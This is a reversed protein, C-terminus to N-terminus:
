GVPDTTGEPRGALWDAGGTFWPESGGAFWPQYPDRRASGSDGAAGRGSAPWRPGAMGAEQRDPDAADEAGAALGDEPEAMESGEALESGQDPEADGSQPEESRPEAYQGDQPRVEESEGPGARDGRRPSSPHAEPLRLLRETLAQWDREVRLGADTHSDAPEGSPASSDPLDPRRM